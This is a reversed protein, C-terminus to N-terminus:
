SWDDLDETDSFNKGPTKIMGDLIKKIMKAFLARGKAEVAYDAGDPISSAKDTENKIRKLLQILERGQHTLGLKELLEKDKQTFEFM